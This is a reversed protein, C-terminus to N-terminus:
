QICENTQWQSEDNQIREFRNRLYGMPKCYVSNARVNAVISFENLNKKSFLFLICCKPRGIYVTRMGMDRVSDRFTDLRSNVVADFQMLSCDGEGDRIYKKKETKKNQREPNRFDNSKSIRRGVDVAVV